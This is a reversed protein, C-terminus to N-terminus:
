RNQDIWRKAKRLAVSDTEKCSKGIESSDGSVTTVLEQIGASKSMLALPLWRADVLSQSCVKRYHDNYPVWEIMIDKQNKWLNSFTAEELSMTDRTPCDTNMGKQSNYEQAQRQAALSPQGNLDSCASKIRGASNNASRIPRCKRSAKRSARFM